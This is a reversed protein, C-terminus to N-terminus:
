NTQQWIITEVSQMEGINGAFVMNQITHEQKDDKVSDFIKEAYQPLYEIKRGRIKLVKDFYLSFSQSTVAIKDVSTYIKRSVWYLAKYMISKKNIGAAAM